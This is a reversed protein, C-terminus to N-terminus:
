RRLDSLQKRIKAEETLSIRGDYPVQFDGICLANASVSIRLADIFPQPDMKKEDPIRPKYSVDAVTSFLKRLIKSQESEPEPPVLPLAVFECKRLSIENKTADIDNLILPAHWPLRDASSDFVAFLALEEQCLITKLHFRAIQRFGELYEELLYQCDGDPDLAFRATAHFNATVYVAKGSMSVAGFGYTATRKTVPRAAPFFLAAAKPMYEQDDDDWGRSSGRSSYYADNNPNLQNSRNDRDAKSSM